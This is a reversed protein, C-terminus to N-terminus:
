IQPSVALTQYTVDTITNAALCGAADPPIPVYQLKLVSEISNDITAAACILRFTHLLLRASAVPPKELTVDLTIHVINGAMGSGLGFVRDGLENQTEEDEGPGRDIIALDNSCWLGM